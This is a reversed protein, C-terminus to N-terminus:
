QGCNAAISIINWINFFLSQICDRCSITQNLLGLPIRAILSARAENEAWSIVHKQSLANAFMLQSSTLSM